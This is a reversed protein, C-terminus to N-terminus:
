FVKESITKIISIIEEPDKCGQQVLALILQFTQDQNM